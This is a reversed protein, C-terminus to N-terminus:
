YTHCNTAVIAEKSAQTMNKFEHMIKTNENTDEPKGFRMM